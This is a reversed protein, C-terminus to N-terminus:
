EAGGVEKALARADRRRAREGLTYATWGVLGHVELYDFDESIDKAIQDYLKLAFDWAESFNSQVVLSSRCWIRYEELDNHYIWFWIRVMRFPRKRGFVKLRTPLQKKKWVFLTPEGLYKSSGKADLEETTHIVDHAPSSHFIEMDRETVEFGQMEKSTEIGSQYDAVNFWRERLPPFQVVWALVRRKPVEVVKYVVVRRRRGKVKRVRFGIRRRYSYGPEVRAAYYGVPTLAPWNKPLPYPKLSM